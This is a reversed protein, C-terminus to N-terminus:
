LNKLSGIAELLRLKALDKVVINLEQRSITETLVRVGAFENLFDQALGAQSLALLAELKPPIFIEHFDERHEM